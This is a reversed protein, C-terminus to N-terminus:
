RKGSLVVYCGLLGSDENKHETIQSLMFSIGLFKSDNKPTFAVINDAAGASCVDHQRKLSLLLVTLDLSCPRSSTSVYALLVSFLPPCNHFLSLNVLSQLVLLLLLFALVAIFWLRTQCRRSAVFLLYGPSQQLGLLWWSAGRVNKAMLIIDMARRIVSGCIKRSLM